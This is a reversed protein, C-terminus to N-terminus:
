VKADFISGALASAAAQSSISLKEFAQNVNPPFRMRPHDTESCTSHFTKNLIMEDNPRSLIM